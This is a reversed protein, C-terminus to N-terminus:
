ATQMGGKVSAFAMIKEETAETYDLEGSVHGECMVLIRDSIGIIEPLESSVMIIAGGQAQRKYM